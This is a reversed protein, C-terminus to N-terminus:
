KNLTASAATYVTGALTQTSMADSVWAGSQAKFTFQVTSDATGAAAITLTVSTGASPATFSGGSGAGAAPTTVTVTHGAGLGSVTNGFGDTVSVNATLTGSNGLATVTCTFLCPSSLTGASVTVHTWALKAAAAAAVTVTLGAGNGISGDTVTVLAAEAKYLKM